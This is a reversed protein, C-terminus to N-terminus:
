EHDNRVEQARDGDTFRRLELLEMTLDAFTQLESREDASYTRPEDDILCLQGITDGDPTTLNAGAYSVIDLEHLVENDAFRADDDINEVVMVDEQLMSHTCITEERRLQSWEAGTCAVLEETNRDMLGVFAVSVDFHSALLTTVRDLSDAISLEEIDYARLAELRSQENRPLPVGAHANHTILDEVIFGLQDLLDPQDRNIYEVILSEFSETEIESPPVSGVLVCPTEPTQDRVADIVGLGTGDPLEDATVLCDIRESEVTEVAAEATHRSLIGVSDATDLPEQIADISSEADVCLVTYQPM